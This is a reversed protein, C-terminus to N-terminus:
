PPDAGARAVGGTAQAGDLLRAVIEIAQRVDPEVGAIVDGYMFSEGIRVIAYALADHEIGLRMGSRETEEDLLRRMAVVVRQHVPGHKTTLVRLAAEPERELLRHLHEWGDAELMCQEITAVVRRVGRKDRHADRARAMAARTLAWLVEGLVRDRSGARRYLTARGMGLDAALRGMDVRRGALYTATAAELIEAPIATATSVTNATSGSM